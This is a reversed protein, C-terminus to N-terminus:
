RASLGVFFSYSLCHFEESIREYGILRRLIVRFRLSLSYIVIVFGTAEGRQSTTNRVVEVFTTCARTVSLAEEEDSGESMWPWGPGGYVLISLVKRTAELQICSVSVLCQRCKGHSSFASTSSERRPSWTSYEAHKTRIGRENGSPLAPIIDCRLCPEM